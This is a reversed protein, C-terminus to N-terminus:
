RSGLHRQRALRARQHHRRARQQRAESVVREPSPHQPRLTRGPLVRLAPLRRETAPLTDPGPAVGALGVEQM